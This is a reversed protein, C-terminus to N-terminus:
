GAANRLVHIPLVKGAPTAFPERRVVRLTEGARWLKIMEEPGPGSRSLTSLVVETVEGEDVPGVRPSVLVMLMPLVHNPDEVLQYDTPSGGFRAPLTLELLALVEHGRMTTGESTLKEYSRIGRLHHVYGIEGIPCGCSRQEAVAYDDTEVNLMLKPASPLFTSFHLADVTEGTTPVVRPRQVVAVKDSMVHVDGIANAAACSVGARGLEAMSYDSFVKSGTAAFVEARAPTLPEGGVRFITGAIDLGHERAAVCVRTASGASAGFLAPTGRRVQEELWRTIRVADALPVHEPVPIPKGWLRSALLAYTTLATERARFPRETARTQSFWRDLGRGLKGARIANGVSNRAAFPRWM